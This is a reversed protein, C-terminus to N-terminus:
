IITGFNFVGAEISAFSLRSYSYVDISAFSEEGMFFFPGCVDGTVMVTAKPSGPIYQWIQQLPLLFTQNTVIEFESIMRPMNVLSLLYPTFYTNTVGEYRVEMTGTFSDRNAGSLADINVEITGSRTPVIPM